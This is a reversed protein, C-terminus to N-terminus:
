QLVGVKKYKYNEPFKIKNKWDWFIEWNIIMNTIKYQWNHETKKTREQLTDITDNEKIEVPYQFIIPWDDYKETVYHMTICSQKIKWNNFDDLLKQYLNKGYLGKYDWSVPWPHINVIKQPEVGLVLKMWGSLFIYDLNYTQIINQYFEVIKKNNEESFERSKERKPFNENILLSNVINSYQNSIRVVWGNPYNTVIHIKWVNKIKWSEINKLLENLWSWWWIPTWTAFIAINKM